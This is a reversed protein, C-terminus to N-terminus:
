LLTPCSTPVNDGSHYHRTVILPHRHGSFLHFYLLFSFANLPIVCIPLTSEHFFCFFITLYISLMAEPGLSVYGLALPFPLLPFGHLICTAAVFFYSRLYLQMHNRCGQYIWTVYIVVVWIFMHKQTANGKKNSFM